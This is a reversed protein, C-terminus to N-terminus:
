FKGQLIVTLIAIRSQPEIFSCQFTKGSDIKQVDSVTLIRNRYTCGTPLGDVPYGIGGIYWFPVDFTGRYNCNFQVVEGVYVM